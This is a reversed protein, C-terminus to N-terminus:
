LPLTGDMFASIDDIAASVDMPHFHTYTGDVKDIDLVFLSGDHYFEFVGLSSKGCLVPADIAYREDLALTNTLLLDYKDKLQEYIFELDNNEM